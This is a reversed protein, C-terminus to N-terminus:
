EEIDSHPGQKFDLIKEIRILLRRQVQPLPPKGELGPAYGDLVGLDEIKELQGLMQFGNDSEKDWVVISVCKNADLNAVTGPCFWETVTVNKKGAHSLKGAAALHPMGKADSTAIFVCGTTEALRVAKQLSDIKM